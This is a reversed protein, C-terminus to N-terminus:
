AGPARAVWGRWALGAYFLEVEDFGAAALVAEDQEPTTCNLGAAVASRSAAVSEPPMGSSLAYAAYRDLWREKAGPAQPFSLHATILPAGPRLRERLARLTREREGAVLFHLTLLCIAGDYPGAPAADILGEVLEVRNMDAGITREALRLMEAAPDVGVFRWGPYARALASIESGGGAGLVLIRADAPAHEALLLGTMRHMAELGPVFNRPGDAYRAVSAPDSFSKQLAAEHVTMALTM